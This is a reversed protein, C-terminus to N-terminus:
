VLIKKANEGLIAVYEMEILGSSRVEDLILEFGRAQQKKPYIRLPYDSAFLIRDPGILDVAQKWIRADYILPSASTDYYVNQLREAVYPNSEYFVLGGGWHAFIFTVNPFREALRIYDMLDAALYGRYAKGVPEPVHLCIPWHKEEAWKIVEIWKPDDMAFGQAAPFVEGIGRFGVSKAWELEEIVNGQRPQVSAFGVFRGAGRNIWEAVNQNQLRCTKPHQWYWGQLWAQDIGARDMDALMTKEDVWCQLASEGVTSMWHVEGHARGWEQPNERVEVSYCHTHVDIIPM